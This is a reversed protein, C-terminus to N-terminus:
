PRGLFLYATRNGGPAFGLGFYLPGLPSDVAIFTAVSTLLSRRGVVAPDGVRGAELSLGAFAGRLLPQDFIKGQYVLRGFDMNQGLFQGPRYGSLELPGGLRFQDYLPLRADGSAGGAKLGILLTHPGFSYAAGGEALWRGYNEDGGLQRRSVFVEIRGTVGTRPFSVNDLTDLRLQTRWAGLRVRAAAAALETPGIELAFRRVGVMPGTRWEALYGLNAGVDLGVLRSLENFRAVQVDDDYIAFPQRSMELRPAVFFHQDVDLPQQFEAAIRNERGLRLDARFEGGLSNVWTRRYRAYIDFTSEGRLDSQLGLGFRLYSPGWAKEKVEVTLVRRGDVTELRYGVHAFDGRGYLRRLDRDLTAQDFMAGARTQMDAILVEPNVAQVGEVRVVDIVREAGRAPAGQQRRLEAYQEPPLAYRALREALRRVAAEGPPVTKPMNDFDAASYEGLDPAILIDEARLQAISNEVNQETLIAIMQASVGLISDLQERRLLPTGVNVAIIVDAGMERAVDVPLNRTLGGDVLLRGDLDLPAVLGPVSMSARVATALDGDRFVVMRGTTIDTAVARFPIPLRDFDLRGKAKILSRLVAELAIGSVAARPLRLGDSGVGFLPGIFPLLDEFKTRMSLEDRPPDDNFLAGTNLRALDREMEDVSAGSAYTAGVIAGMSTGAIVDIPVRLQELVRLVGIHAAGRAGGGSLVLGIRPRASPVHLDRALRTEDAVATDAPAQAQAGLSACAICACAAAARLCSALVRIPDLPAIVHFPNSM